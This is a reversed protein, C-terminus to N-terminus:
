ATQALLQGDADIAIGGDTPWAASGAKEVFEAQDLAFLPSIEIPVAVHGHEDRPLTAGAAALWEGWYDAMSQRAATVSNPGDFQKTPTYEGAADIELAIPEHRTYRLADFVFTEFKYGNPEAPQVTAGSADVHPIKKHARHWPFEDFRDNVRRAFDTAIIHIAPNGAYCIVRGEADTELLQPYLDLESYEIVRYEGDCLCHVGVSERPAHKRHIKSSMEGNGLVHYGLFVPDAVKVAWNDVQFYSLTDVGRAAADDFVGHDAMAPICGGHGNPNMALTDPAELIFRGEADMCPTMRQTFFRVQAPDLGFYGHEKFYAETAPGNAESVMIYWPLTCGYRQETKRVKEGHYTFISKGTLPGIPYAGKPGDFGLRTGQGGAVLFLGVRGQRLADEGAELAERVDTRAPDAKPICPVPEIREFHEPPPTSRVWEAALRDMLEFDIQAVQELLRQREAENLSPWFRFVHDQGHAEAAQRLAKEDPTTM